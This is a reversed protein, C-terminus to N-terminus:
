KRLSEGKVPGIKMSKQAPALKKRMNSAGAESAPKIGAAEGAAHPTYCALTGDPYIGIDKGQSLCGKKIEWFEGVSYAHSYTTIGFFSISTFATIILKNMINGKETKIFTM